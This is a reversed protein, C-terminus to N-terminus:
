LKFLYLPTFAAIMALIQVVIVHLAEKPKVPLWRFAFGLIVGVQVVMLIQFIHAGTGEDTEHVVGHIAINILIMALLGFSIAIPILASPRKILPNM